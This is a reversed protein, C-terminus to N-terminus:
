LARSGPRAHKGVLAPLCAEDEVQGTAEGGTLMPGPAARSLTRRSERRCAPFPSLWAHGRHDAPRHLDGLPCTKLRTARRRRRHAAGNGAGHDHNGRSSRPLCEGRRTSLVSAGFQAPSPCRRREANRCALCPADALCGAQTFLLMRHTAIRAFPRMPVRMAQSFADSSGEKRMATGIPCSSTAAARLRKSVTAAALDQEAQRRDRAPPRVRADAVRCTACSPKAKTGSLRRAAAVAAKARSAVSPGERARYRTCSSRLVPRAPNPPMARRPQRRPQGCASGPRDHADHPHPRRTPETADPVHRPLWAGPVSRGQM